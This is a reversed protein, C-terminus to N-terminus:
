CYGLIKYVIFGLWEHTLFGLSYLAEPNPIFLHDPTFRRIGSHADTVFPKVKIGAKKFITMSRPMHYASTILWVTDSLLGLSDLIAKSYVANEYTNKSKWEFIFVSDNLGADKLYQQIFRAEVKEPFEVSGSGGSFILKKVARNKLLRLSQFLRDSNHGFDVENKRLDIDCIGGLIIGAPFHNKSLDYDETRTEYLRYLEDVIFSNSCLYLQMLAIYLFRWRKNKKYDRYFALLLCLFWVLPNTVFGLIKSIIFFM